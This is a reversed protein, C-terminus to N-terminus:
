IAPKCTLGKDGLLLRMVYIGVAMAGFSLLWLASIVSTMSDFLSPFSSVKMTSGKEFMRLLAVDGEKGM